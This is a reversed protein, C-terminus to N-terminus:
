FGPSTTIPPAGHLPNQLAPSFLYFVGNPGPELCRTRQAGTACDRALRGNAWNCATISAPCAPCRLHPCTAPHPGPMANAPPWRRQNGLEALPVTRRSLWQPIAEVGNMPCWTVMGSGLEDHIRLPLAWRWLGAGDGPCPSAIACPGDAAAMPWPGRVPPRQPSTSAAHLNMSQGTPGGVERAAPDGRWCCCMGARAEVRGEVAAPLTLKPRGEAHPSGEAEFLFASADLRLRRGGIDLWFNSCRGADRQVEPNAYHLDPPHRLFRHLYFSPGGSREMGLNSSRLHPVARRM